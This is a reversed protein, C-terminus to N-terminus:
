CRLMWCNCEEPSAKPLKAGPIDDETLCVSASFKGSADPEVMNFSPLTTRGIHARTVVPGHYLLVGRSKSFSSYHQLASINVTYKALYFALCNEFTKIAYIDKVATIFLPPMPFPIQPM